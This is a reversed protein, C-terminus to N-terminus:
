AVYSIVAGCKQPDKPMLQCRCSVLELMSDDTGPVLQVKAHRMWKKKDVGFKMLDLNIFYMPNEGRLIDPDAYTTELAPIRFVPISNIVHSHRYRTIDVGINDNLEKKVNGMSKWIVDNTYIRKNKFAPMELDKMQNPATFKMQYMIEALRERDTQTITGDGNTWTANWNRLDAYTASSLDVGASGAAGLTSNVSSSPNAGQFAGGLTTAASVQATTIPVIWMPIAFVQTPDLSSDVFSWMDEELGALFRLTETIRRAKLIDVIQARSRNTLTEEEIHSIDFGGNAIPVNGLVSNNTLRGQRVTGPNFWRDSKADAGVDFYWREEITKGGVIPRTNENIFGDLTHWSNQTMMVIIDDYRLLPLTQRLVDAFDATKLGPM